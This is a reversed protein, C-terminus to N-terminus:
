EDILTEVAMQQARAEEETEYDKKCLRYSETSSHDARRLAAVQMCSLVFLIFARACVCVCEHRSHSEFGRDWRELSRLCNMGSVARVSHDAFPHNVKYKERVASISLPGSIV